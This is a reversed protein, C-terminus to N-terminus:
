GKKRLFPSFIMFIDIKDILISQIETLLVRLSWELVLDAHKEQTKPKKLGVWKRGHLFYLLDAVTAM